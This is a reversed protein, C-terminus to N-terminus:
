SMTRYHYQVTHTPPQDHLSVWTEQLYPENTDEYKEQKIFVWGIPGHDDHYVRGTCRGYEKQLSRFLNAITDHGTEYVPHEGILVYSYDTDGYENIYPEVKMFQEQIYISM